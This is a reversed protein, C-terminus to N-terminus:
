RSCRRLPQVGYFAVRPEIPAERHATCLCVARVLLRKEWKRLRRDGRCYSLYSSRARLHLSLGPISLLLGVEALGQARCDEFLSLALPRGCRLLWGEEARKGFGQEDGDLGTGGESM